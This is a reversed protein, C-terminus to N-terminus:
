PKPRARLQKLKITALGFFNEMQRLQVSITLKAHKRQECARSLSGSWFELDDETRIPTPRCEVPVCSLQAQSLAALYEQTLTVVRAGTIAQTVHATVEKLFTVPSAQFARTIEEPNTRLSRELM